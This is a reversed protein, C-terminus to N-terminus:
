DGYVKTSEEECVPQSLHDAMLQVKFRMDGPQQGVVKIRFVADARPALHPLKEFIVQQGQIHNAAPGTAERPLMGAPATATLQIGTSPSTGQNLIRVEYTTEAGVEIPDELDAIELLLAPVGEVHLPSEAKAELGREGQAAAKAIWDGASKAVVKVSFNRKQDPPLSNVVWSVTRLAPDYIGGDSASAFELGQPLVDMVHVNRAPASGPNTIELALEAPRNLYRRQPGTQRVALRAETLIVTSHARAELGGDATAVSENSQTGHLAATTSLTVSKSEGPGLTGIDADINSGAEHKLGAALREHLVVNTAAGTGTNSVQIQFVVPEGVQAAEPGTVNIALRPRTIRTQLGAAVSFTALTRSVLEGELPPQVKVRIRREAGPPLIGLSWGLQDGRVEPQPESSLFRVGAPLEDDLHLNAVSVSGNNRVVIEYAMAEGSNLSSPGIKEV